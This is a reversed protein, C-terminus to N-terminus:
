IVSDETLSLPTVAKPKRNKYAQWVTKRDQLNEETRIAKETPKGKVEVIKPESFAAQVLAQLAFVRAKEKDYKEKPNRVVRVEKIVEAFKDTKKELYAKTVDRDGDSLNYEWRIRIEGYKTTEIKM